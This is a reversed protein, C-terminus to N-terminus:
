KEPKTETVPVPVGAPQEVVVPTPAHEIQGDPVVTAKPMDADTGPTTRTNALLATLAGISGTTIGVYATLLTPDAKTGMYLMVSLTGITIM